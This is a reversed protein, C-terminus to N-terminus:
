AKDEKEFETNVRSRIAYEMVEGLDIGGHDMPFDRHWTASFECVGDHHPLMGVSLPDDDEGYEPAPLIIDGGGTAKITVLHPYVMGNRAQAEEGIKRYLEILRHANNEQTLKKLAWARTKKGDEYFFQLGDVRSKLAAYWEDATNDVMKGYRALDEYAACRTAVFPVGGCCYEVLKLWSRREDYSYEGHENGTSSPVPRMDMPAIGIDFTVVIQPWDTAPVGPQRWVRGEPLAGLLFGLRNESGCFKFVVREDEEMLRRMGEIVGSYKFSDIHSLSGGWGIIIKGASDPRETVTPTRGGDEGVTYEVHYDPAGPARKVVREWDVLAPYNPWYYGRIIHEWDKLIVRSPSILADAHRLGEKLREVPPPDLNNTNRIWTDFATNSPPIEPYHDDLDVLVIKGLARWYDMADWMPQWLVNRQFLIIDALGLYKQVVPNHIDLASDLSIMKATHPFREPDKAHRYNIANSLLHCRWHSCNWETETDAFLYVIHLPKM